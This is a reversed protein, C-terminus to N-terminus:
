FSFIRDDGKFLVQGTLLEAMICGVSWMDVILMNCCSWESLSVIRCSVVKATM